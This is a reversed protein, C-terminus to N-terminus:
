ALSRGLLANPHDSRPSKKGSGVAKKHIVGGGDRAVIDPRNTLHNTAGVRPSGAQIVVSLRAGYHRVRIKSTPAPDANLKVGM